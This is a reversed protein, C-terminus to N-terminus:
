GAPQCRARAPHGGGRRRDGDLVARDPCRSGAPSTTARSPPSWCAPGAGAGTASRTARGRHRRDDRRRHAPLQVPRRRRQAALDAVTGALAEGPAAGARLRALVLAWVLASDSARRWPSCTRPPCADRGAPGTPARAMRDARRQPQVALPRAAFPAAAATARSPASPPRGCRPSCRGPAPSGPWTPSAVPRGLDARGAPLPGAGPRRRAYWGVGFGDANVTGHRQRRPAWSQQGPRAAPRHAPVAPTVPPGLYALHRCM